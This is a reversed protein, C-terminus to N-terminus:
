RLVAGVEEAAADIELSVERLFQSREPSPMVDPIPAARDYVEDAIIKARVFTSGRGSQVYAHQWEELRDVRVRRSALELMRRSVGAALAEYIQQKEDDTPENGEWGIPNQIMLYIQHQLQKRLDAVPTLTDYEDSWGPTALRRSLAKIRTWHEKPIGSQATIGLLSLWTDRFKEAAEKVNLGLQLRDYVPRAAVQEPREVIRDIAELLTLLQDITRKGSKSEPKLREHIATLFFRSTELRKRLAREAFPGLDEGISALVNEASALVHQAKLSPSPFNDGTVADFHSFVTLLKSANGTSVLERMAAVSAAQMPQTANDVLLVADVEEIRRSLSTSIAASSKPTHGLGEGDLLVLKPQSGNGWLPRFPGAVRVGNVLPTLLTGFLPAYNSSFRAIAKIFAERDDTDWTWSLPWGQRTRKLDGVQLLDFRNEMEDMLRDTIAHFAEDERLLSDLEEEFIEDVVRQDQEGTAQLEARLADGHKHAIGRLEAVTSGLLENTAELDIRELEEPSFFEGTEVTLDDEDDDFDAFGSVPGNGLVYSFRYRQNVHNLLQRLVEGEPANRYAALVAASICENLYERLEDSSVFTVAGRYTPGEDLVIETDHVTTKATSTSPFRERVPHTGILQRVLTTKGAGTTGLLLVRRYDSDGSRPLAIAGERVARHDTSEPLMKDFFIDVVRSDFRREAEGRASPEWYQPSSLLENLQEKLQEAEDDDRTSLGRRVRLGPQGTADERRVPHRFIISWGARGQSRSLSAAYRKESM